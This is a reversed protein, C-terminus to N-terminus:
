VGLVKNCMEITQGQYEEYVQRDTEEAHAHPLAGWVQYATGALCILLLIFIYAWSTMFSQKKKRRSLGRKELQTFNNMYQLFPALFPSTSLAVTISVRLSGM